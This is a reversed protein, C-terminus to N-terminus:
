MEQEARANGEAMKETEENHHSFLINEIKLRLEM